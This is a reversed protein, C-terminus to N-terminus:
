FKSLNVKKDWTINVLPVKDEKEASYEFYKEEEYADHCIHNQEIEKMNSFASHIVQIVM